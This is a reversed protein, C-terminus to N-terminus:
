IMSARDFFEIILRQSDALAEACEKPRLRWAKLSRSVKNMRKESITCGLIHSGHEYIRTVVLHPYDPTRIAEEIRRAAEEAPLVDDNESALILIDCNMKELPLASEPVTGNIDFIYRPLRHPGYGKSFLGKVFAGASGKRLVDWSTFPMDGGGRSIVSSGAPRRGATGEMMHDFPSCVAACVIEPIFCACTLTYLAGGSTGTMATRINVGLRERLWKVAHEAYEAPVASRRGEPCLCLVLVTFGADILFQSSELAQEMSENLDGARIVAMDPRRTGSFFCGLFGDRELETREM